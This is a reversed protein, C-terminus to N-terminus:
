KLINKKCQIVAYDRMKGPKMKAMYSVTVLGRINLATISTESRDYKKTLSDIATNKDVGSIRLNSAKEAVDGQEKCHEESTMDALVPNSFLMISVLMGPCRM